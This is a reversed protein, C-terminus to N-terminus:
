KWFWGRAIPVAAGRNEIIVRNMLNCSAIVKDKMAKAAARAARGAVKAVQTGTCVPLFLPPSRQAKGM